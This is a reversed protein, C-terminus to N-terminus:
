EIPIAEYGKKVKVLSNDKNNREFQGPQAENLQKEKVRVQDRARKKEIERAEDSLEKPREMLIMGKRTVIKDKAEKPMMEPHRDAPVPDWGKRALSVQYAPDEKGLVELRKWEYEWGDPISTRDVYFEDTGEDMDGLTDRIEAARLKAREKPSLEKSDTKRLNPRLDPKEM